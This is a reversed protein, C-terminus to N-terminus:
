VQSGLFGQLSLHAYGDKERPLLASVHPAEPKGAESLRTYLKKSGSISLSELESEKPYRMFAKM